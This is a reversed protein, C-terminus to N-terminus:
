TTVNRALFRRRHPKVPHAEAPLLRFRLHYLYGLKPQAGTWVLISNGDESVERYDLSRRRSEELDLSGASYAAGCQIAEELPSPITVAHRHPDRSRITVQAMDTLHGVDVIWADGQPDMVHPFARALSIRAQALQRKAEYALPIHLIGFEIWRGSNVSRRTELPEFLDQGPRVYERGNVTLSKVTVAKRIATESPIELSVPLRLERSPSTDDPEVDITWELEADGREDITLTCDFRKFTALSPVAEIVRRRKNLTRFDELSALAIVLVMGQFAVGVAVYLAIASYEVPIRDSITALGVVASFAAGAMAILFPYLIRRGGAALMLNRM